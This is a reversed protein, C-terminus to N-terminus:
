ATALSFEIERERHGEKMRYPSITSNYEKNPIEVKHDVRRWGLKLLTNNLTGLTKQVFFFTEIAKDFDDFAKAESENSYGYIKLIPCYIVWYGHREVSFVPIAIKSINNM